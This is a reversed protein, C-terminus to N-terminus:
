GRQAETAEDFFASWFLTQGMPPKACETVFHVRWTLGGWVISAWPLHESPLVKFFAFYRLEFALKGGQQEHPRPCPVRWSSCVSNLWAGGAERLPSQSDGSKLSMVISMPSLLEVATCRQTILVLHWWYSPPSQGWPNLFTELGLPLRCISSLLIKNSHPSCPAGLHWAKMKGGWSPFHKTAWGCWMLRVPM